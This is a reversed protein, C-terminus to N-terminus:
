NTLILPLCTIMETKTSVKHFAESLICYLHETVLNKIKIIVKWITGIPRCIKKEIKYICRIWKDISESNLQLQILTKETSFIVEKNGVHITCIM